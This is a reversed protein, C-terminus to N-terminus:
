IIAVERFLFVDNNPLWSVYWVIEGYGILVVVPESRLTRLLEDTFVRGWTMVNFDVFLSMRMSLWFVTPMALVGM